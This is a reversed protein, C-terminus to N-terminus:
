RMELAFFKLDFAPMTNQRRGTLNSPKQQGACSAYLCDMENGHFSRLM